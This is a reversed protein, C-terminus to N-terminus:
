DKYLKVTDTTRLHGREDFKVVLWETYQRHTVLDEEYQGSEGLYYYYEDGAIRQKVADPIKADDWVSFFPGLPRGPPEPSGLLEVIEDKTLGARLRTTTLDKVLDKRAVTHSHDKIDCRKNIGSWVTQDFAHGSDFLTYRVIAVTVIGAFAVGIACWVLFSLVFARESLQL